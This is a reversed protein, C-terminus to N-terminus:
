FWKKHYSFSINFPENTTLIKGFHYPKGVQPIEIPIPLLGRSTKMQAGIGYNFYLADYAPAKSAQSQRPVGASFPSAAHGSDGNKVRWVDGESVVGRQPKQPVAPASSAPTAVEEFRREAVPPYYEYAEDVKKLKKLTGKFSKLKFEDSAYLTALVRSVPVDPKALNLNLRGRPKFKEIEQLYVIEVPFAHTQDEVTFSKKLLLLLTGTTDRAPKVPENAVFSSWVTAGEPLDVQLYQNRNNRTQFVARTLLKGDETFLITYAAYDIITSLVPLTEFRRIQLDLKIPGETYKFALVLPDPALASLERPAEEVDVQTLKFSDKLTCEVNAVTTLGAWGTNRESALPQIFPLNLTTVDPKLPLERTIIVFGEGKVGNAFSIELISNESNRDHPEQTTWGKVGSGEVSSITANLPVEVKLTLIENHLVTYNIRDSIFVVGEGVSFLSFTRTSLRTPIKAGEAVTVKREWSIDLSRTLGFATSLKAEDGEKKIDVIASNQVKFIYDASPITLSLTNQPFPAIDFHASGTSKGSGRIDAELTFTLTGRGPENTTVWLLGDREFLGTPNGNTKVDIVIAKNSAIPISVWEDSKLVTFTCSVELRIHNESLIGDYVAAELLYPTPPKTPDAPAFIDKLWPKVEAWPLTVSGSKITDPAVINVDSTSNKEAAAATFCLTAFLCLAIISVISKVRSM